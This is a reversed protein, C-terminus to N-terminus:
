RGGGHKSTAEKALLSKANQSERERERELLSKQFFARASALRIPKAEFFPNNLLFLPLGCYKFPRTRLTKTHSLSLAAPAAIHKKISVANTRESTRGGAGVGVGVVASELRSNSGIFILRHGAEEETANDREEPEDREGCKVCGVLLLALGLQLAIREM